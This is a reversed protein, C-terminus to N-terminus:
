PNLKDKKKFIKKIKEWVPEETENNRDPYNNDHLSDKKSFTKKLFDIFNFETDMSDVNGPIENMQQLTLSDPAEFHHKLLGKYHSDAYMQSFFKGVVPLAMHAGQGLKMNRFHISPDDAGVWCGATYDPSFGIFWGDAYEQTTGTKGAFDGPVNYKSRIASGTGENIVSSLMDILIRCNEPDVEAASPQPVNFSELQEGRGNEIELLTYPKVQKGLNAITAYTSVMEKLSISATGLALSPVAPLEAKMGLNRATHITNEIGTKMILDVTVTNISHSLASKMTYYGSYDDSANGPSWNDFEEYTKQESSYYDYPSLGNELAALYVIPKFASGVQRAANCYDYKFFRYDIGGIYAKIAGTSNEIVMCGTNMMSIYHKLSDLPTTKVQKLDDWTFVATEIPQSFEKLIEPAKKGAALGNKYRDSRRIARDLVSKNEGWANADKWHKDFASQLLKMNDNVANRAFRQMNYDITTRIKLGDTYLNYPEGDEKFHKKCWQILVPRIYELLYPAPGQNYTILSYRLGLPIFKFKEGEEKTIFKQKIMQDIVVNRREVSKDPHLRPNFVNNAKLMGVLVAAEPVTLDSPPKSFFREAAVEIGFLGEGFPVTNLYITLIEEKSYIQELRYAIIAERIKSVPITFLGMDNRPFLNKAIQESLTSGGGASQNRFLLTKFFVRLLAIEDIGRHKFFRADETAILANVLNPSIEEYTVNSRNEIYFRGLLKGEESFVESALPTKFRTLEERTPIKGLFGLYIVLVLLILFIIGAVIIKLLFKEWRFKEPNRKSGHIKRGRKNGKAM